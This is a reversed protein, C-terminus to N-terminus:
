RMRRIAVALVVGLGALLTGSDKSAVTQPSEYAPAVTQILPAAVKPLRRATGAPSPAVPQTLTAAWADLSLLLIAAGLVFAAFRRITGFFM